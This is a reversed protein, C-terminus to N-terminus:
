FRESIITGAPDESDEMTPRERFEEIGRGENAKGERRNSKEMGRGEEPLRHPRHQQVVGKPLGGDVVGGVELVHAL